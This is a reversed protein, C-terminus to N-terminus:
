RLPYWTNTSLVYRLERSAGAALTTLAINGGLLTQSGSPVISFANTAFNSATCNIAEFIQGDTPTTPLTINAAAAPQATICLNGKGNPFALPAALTSLVVGVSNRMIGSTVFYSPGGAGNGVQWTENDSLATPVITTQGWVFGSAFALTALAVGALLARYKKM